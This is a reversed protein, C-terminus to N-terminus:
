RKEGRGLNRNYLKKSPAGIVMVYNIKVTTTIIQTAKNNNNNGDDDDDDGNNTNHTNNYIM